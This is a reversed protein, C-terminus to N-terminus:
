DPSQETCIGFLCCSVSATHTPQATNVPSVDESDRHGECRLLHVFRCGKTRWSRLAFRSCVAPGKANTSVQSITCIVAPM